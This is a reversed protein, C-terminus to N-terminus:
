LAARMLEAYEAEGLAVPNTKAAAASALADVDAEAVGYSGMRPLGARSVLADLTSDLLDLGHATRDSEPYDCPDTEALLFGARAYKGLAGAGGSARLLRVNQRVAPLVLLGCVVGHPIQFRAGIPSALGHVSGLGANALGVGSLYAAYAMGARADLNRPDSLMAPFSEAFRAIGSECLADTMPSAAPSLYSELLQTFADLGSAASVPLPCGLALEPDVVAAAPAYADHRLSKKFGGAGIESIVANKSAETGTGATTPVALYYLTEGTPARSGVGELFDKVSPAREGRSRAARVAPVMAAVAKGADMASGGGIGVVAAEEPSRDGLADAVAAAAGDVFAPSPEGPTEFELVSAGSEKLAALAARGRVSSKFSASGTVLAVIPRGGVFYPLRALAGAGFELRPERAFSFPKLGNM